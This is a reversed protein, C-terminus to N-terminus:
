WNLWFKTAEARTANNKPNFKGNYGVLIGAEALQQVPTKAYDSILDGDFFTLAKSGTPLDIEAEDAFKVMMKAMDQRTINADPAFKTEFRWQSGSKRRGPWQMPMTNRSMSMRSRRNRPIRPPPIKLNFTRALITVFQGRTMNSNPSFATESTGKMMETQLAYNVYTAYWKNGCDKMDAISKYDAKRADVLAKTVKNAQGTDSGSAGFVVIQDFTKTSM